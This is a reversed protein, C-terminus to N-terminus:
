EALMHFRRCLVYKSIAAYEGPVTGLLARIYDPLYRDYKVEMIMRQDDMPDILPLKADFLDTAFLGTRLYKDFTIRVNETPHTYAERVYDVIVTPRLVNLRMERFLDQLLPNPSLSLKSPNGSIIQECLRRTIRASDKVILSERKSKRELYIVDESYNYIRIRYKQRDPSGSVKTFYASDFADDFYLSRVIYNNDADGNEDRHLISNFLARLHAHGAPSIFYKLEHRPEFATSEPPRFLKEM